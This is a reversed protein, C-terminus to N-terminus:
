ARLNRESEVATSSSSITSTLTRNTEPVESNEVVESASMVNTESWSKELRGRYALVM